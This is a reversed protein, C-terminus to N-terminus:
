WTLEKKQLFSAIGRKCDDTARAEANREAAEELFTNIDTRSSAVFLQKTQQLAAGSTQTSFQNTWFSIREELEDSSEVAETIIGVKQAQDASILEAGLLLRKAITVGTKEILFKSVIAPVFGIRTETYGMKADSVAVSIDCVTALGCGGAIAHGHVAAIVPKSGNYISKFLHALIQSDNLNDEYSASQMKELAALDAGASFVKGAGRLVIVRIDDNEFAKELAEQLELVLKQNLANRKNPRNLTLTCVRNTIDTLLLSNDMSKCFYSDRPSREGFQQIETLLHSM